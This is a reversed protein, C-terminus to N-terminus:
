AATTGNRVQQIAGLWVQQYATAMQDLSFATEIRFRAKACRQDWSPQTRAAAIAEGIADALAAADSTPVVWGTNGVIEAADGVDTAVCPTGCAMAEALVNPFSESVSSMVHVDLVNMVAPIDERQGLLLIRDQLENSRILEVLAANEMSMGVGILACRFFLAGAKLRSLAALLTGHDKDPNYRAVFGLLVETSPIGFERRLKDRVLGDPCFRRTDCGNVIVMMRGRDYGAGVHVELAKNACCVIVAPVFRSLLACAKLVLRSSKKVYDQEMTSHRLNWCVARVGSIRAVVGGVFDAHYMWTQVVDPRVSAILRYLSAVGRMSIRGRPMDLVYVPVGMKKLVPGYKGEGMLSVVSHVFRGNTGCLRSLVAEAGGDGLGTVIHLVHYREPDRVDDRAGQKMM